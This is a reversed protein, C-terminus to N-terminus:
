IMWREKYLLAVTMHSYMAPFEKKFLANSEFYYETLVAMFEYQNTFAYDRFFGTSDVQERTEPKMLERLIKKHYKLYRIADVDTYKESEFHMVHTFEHLGLHINDSVDDMGQIFDQWSLALVKARPNYEGKHKNNNTPSEFAEDFILITSLLPFLYSRRGFSLRCAVAAILVKQEDTVKNKHRHKFDKDSIFSKVRHEFQRQDKLDLTKFFPYKYLIDKQLRPLRKYSLFQRYWIYDNKRQSTILILHAFFCLLGLGVISFAYPAMWGYENV